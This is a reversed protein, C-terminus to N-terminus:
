QAPYASPLPYSAGHGVFQSRSKGVPISENLGLTCAGHHQSQYWSGIDWLLDGCLESRLQWLKEGLPDISTDRPLYRDHYVGESAGVSLGWLYEIDAALPPKALAPVEGEAQGVQGDVPAASEDHSIHAGLATHSTERQRGQAGNPQARLRLFEGELENLLKVLLGLLGSCVIKGSSTRLRPSRDSGEPPYIEWVLVHLGHVDVTAEGGWPCQAVATKPRPHNQGVAGPLHKRGELTGYGGGKGCSGVHQRDGRHPQKCVRHAEPAQQGQHDHRNHRHDGPDDYGVVQPLTGFVWMLAAPRREVVSHAHKRHARRHQQGIGDQEGQDKNRRPPEHRPVVELACEFVWRPKPLVQRKGPQTGRQCRYGSGKSGAQLVLVPYASGGVTVTLSSAMLVVIGFVFGLQDVCNLVSLYLTAATLRPLYHIASIFRTPSRSTASSKFAWRRLQANATTPEATMIITASAPRRPNNPPAPGRFRAVTPSWFSVSWMWSYSRKKRNPLGVVSCTLRSVAAATSPPSIRRQILRSYRFLMWIWSTSGCGSVTSTVGSRRTYM